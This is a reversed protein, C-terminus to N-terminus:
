TATRRGPSCGPSPASIPLRARASAGRRARASISCRSKRSRARRRSIPSSIPIARDARYLRRALRGVAGRLRRRVRLAAAAGGRARIQACARVREGGAAGDSLRRHRSQCIQLLGGRGARHRPIARPDLGGAARRHRPRHARRRALGLRRPRPLLRHGRGGRPRGQHAEVAGQGAGLQLRRLRRRQQLRFLRDDGGARRGALPRQPARASHQAARAHHRARRASRRHDRVAARDAAPLNGEGHRRSLRGRGQRASLRRACRGGLADDVPHLQRVGGPRARAQAGGGPPVHRHDRAAEAPLSGMVREDTLPRALERLLWSRWEPTNPEPPEGEGHGTSAWWLAQLAETTRTTNERLDLRVTSFRFMQAEVRVPRVLDAAIAALNAEELAAELVRLDVILEDANAYAAEVAAFDRGETQAITGDLKRLMCTLYQRYAEGPNRAAIAAGVGSAELERELTERFSEPVPMARETISLLRALETVRARYRRLAALANERLTWATVATTVSPNGDRDGGIWSGFQFFPPVDFRRGPYYQDLAAELGALM